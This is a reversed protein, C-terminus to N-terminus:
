DDEYYIVAETPVVFHKGQSGDKLYIAEMGGGLFYSETIEKPLSDTTGCHNESGGELIQRLDAPTTCAPHGSDLIAGHTVLTFGGVFIFNMFKM